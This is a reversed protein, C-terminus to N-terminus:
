AEIRRVADVLQDVSPRDDPGDGWFGYALTGDPSIIFDGGLQLTDETPRRLGSLGDTRLIQLYRMAAKIGWVRWVTGRGLGFARYTSRDPDVLVPFPLENRKTYATLNRADTFTILAVTTAEGLETLRDRM